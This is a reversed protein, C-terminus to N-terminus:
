TPTRRVVNEPDHWDMGCAFCQRAQETRLPQGCYACAAATPRPTEARAEPALTWGGEGIPAASGKTSVDLYVEVQHHGCACEVRYVDVIADQNTKVNAVKAYRVSARSPCRLRQLYDRGGALGDGCLVPHDADLGYGTRAPRHSGGLPWRWGLWSSM